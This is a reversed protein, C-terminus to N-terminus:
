VEGGVEYRWVQGIYQQCDKVLGECQKVRAEDIAPEVPKVEIFEPESIQLPKDEVKEVVVPEFVKCCFLNLIGIHSNAGQLVPSKFCITVEKARAYEKDMEAPLLTAVPETIGLPLDEDKKFRYKAVGVIFTKSPALTFSHPVLELYM